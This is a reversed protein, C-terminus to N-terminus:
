PLAKDKNYNKIAELMAPTIGLKKIEKKFVIEDYGIKELRYLGLLMRRTVGFEALGTALSNWFKRSNEASILTREYDALKNVLAELRVMENANATLELTKFIIDPEDCKKCRAWYMVRIYCETWTQLGGSYVGSVYRFALGTEGCEECVRYKVDNKAEARISHSLSNIKNTEKIDKIIHFYFNDLLTITIIALLIVIIKKM